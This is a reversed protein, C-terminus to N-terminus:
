ETILWEGWAQWPFMSICQLQRESGWHKSPCIRAWIQSSENKIKLKGSYGTRSNTYILTSFTEKGTTKFGRTECCNMEFM